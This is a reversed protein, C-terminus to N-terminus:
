LQLFHNGGYRTTNWDWYLLLDTFKHVLVLSIDCRYKSLKRTLLNSANNIPKYISSSESLYSNQLTHFFSKAPLHTYQAMAELKIKQPYILHGYSSYLWGRTVRTTNQSTSILGSKWINVNSFIRNLMSPLKKNIQWTFLILKREVLPDLNFALCFLLVPVSYEINYSSSSYIWSM